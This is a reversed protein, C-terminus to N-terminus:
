KYFAEMNITTQLPVSFDAISAAMTAWYAPMYVGNVLFIKIYDNIQRDRKARYLDPNWTPSVSLNWALVNTAWYTMDIWCDDVDAPLNYGSYIAWTSVPDWHWVFWMSYDCAWTDIKWDYVWRNEIGGDKNKDLSHLRGADFWKLRLMQIRYQTYTGGTSTVMSILKRRFFLRNKWDQSILYLEQINDSDQIAKIDDNLLYWVDEDDWEWVMNSAWTKVDTFMAAYQGYSQVGEAIWCNDQTKVVPTWNWQRSDIQTETTCYYLDHYWTSRKFWWPVKEKRDTSNWNWYTTFNTCYWWTWVNWLFASWRSSDWVCGVMQRNYYEEYDIRYDQVMINLREFFEYWQQISSQRASIERNAKIMFNYLAFMAPMILGIIGMVYLLEMLTFSHLRLKRKLLSMCIFLLLYSKYIINKIGTALFYFEWIKFWSSKIKSM